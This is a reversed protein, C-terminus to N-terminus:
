PGRGHTRPRAWRRRRCPRRPRVRPGPLVARGAWATRVLGGGPLRLGSCNPPGRDTGARCRGPAQVSGGLWNPTGIRLSMTGSVEGAFMVVFFGTVTWESGVLASRDDPGQSWARPSFTMPTVTWTRAPGTTARRPVPTPTAPPSRCTACTSEPTSGRGSAATRPRSPHGQRGGAVGPPAWDFRCARGVATLAPVCVPLRGSMLVRSM